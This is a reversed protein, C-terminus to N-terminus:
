AATFGINVRSSAGSVKPDLADDIVGIIEGALDDQAGPDALHVSFKPDTDELRATADMPGTFVSLLAAFVEPECQSRGSAFRLCLAFYFRGDVHRKSITEDGSAVRWRDRDLVVPRPFVAAAPAGLAKEVASALDRAIREAQDSGSRFNEYKSCLEDYRSM